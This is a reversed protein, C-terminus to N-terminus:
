STIVAASINDSVDFRTDELSITHV